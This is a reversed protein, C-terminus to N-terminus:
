RTFINILWHLIKIGIKLYNRYPVPVVVVTASGNRKREAGSEPVIHLLPMSQKKIILKYAGWFLYPLYRYWYNTLPVTEKKQNLPYFFGNLIGTSPNWNLIYVTEHRIKFNFDGPLVVNPRYKACSSYRASSELLRASRFKVGAALVSLIFVQVLIIRRCPSDTWRYTSFYDGARYLSPWLNM